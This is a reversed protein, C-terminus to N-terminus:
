VRGAATQRRRWAAEAEESELRNLDIWRDIDDPYDAYYDMAVTVLAPAIGLYTAALHAKGGENRVTEVVEWVDLGSGALGPRRGTRNSLRNRSARGHM